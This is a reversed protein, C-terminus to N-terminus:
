ALYGDRFQGFKQGDRRFNRQRLGDLHLKTQNTTRTEVAIVKAHFRPTRVLGALSLRRGPVFLRVEQSPREVLSRIARPETVGNAIGLIWQGDAHSTWDDHDSIGRIAEVGPLNAYAFGALVRARTESGRVIRSIEAALQISRRPRGLHLM